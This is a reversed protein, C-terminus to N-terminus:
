RLPNEYWVVNRSTQGAVLLDLDSDGDIDVSRIDYAAQEAGVLHMAFDGRGDNRFWVTKQSDKACTAADLDGDGDIDAVTLCHPGELTDDMPHPKWDPSEFWLLGFGHGRSCILDVKGDGNVDAPLINTAGPEGRAVLHKTWGSQTADAPAEWWAFWDGTGKPATPGGKAATMLDPRGDGNLDGCGLYHTLGPADGKAAMFRPWAKASRPQEPTRYWAVSEPFEGKPQAGNAILDAHGDADVDAVLLGHIGHVQDDVLRAAWPASGGSGPNELWVTLGPDYRAGVYDPDGDRDVDLVESHIFQHDPDDALIVPKWNPAAFLRTKGGCNSIVDVRGDGSFDAAVATNVHEGTFVTHKTWPATIEGAAIATSGCLFLAVLLIRSM